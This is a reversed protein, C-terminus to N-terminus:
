DRTEMLLLQGKKYTIMGEEDAIENSVCRSDVPALFYDTLPYKFGKLTLDEVTGGLPFLSIYKGYQESKKIVTGRDILSIRNCSDLLWAKASAEKAISLLQVNGWVHDLRSGTCGTLIIEDCGLELALRLAIETDTADKEPRFRRIDVDARNVYSDLIGAEASDFDGVIHTVPLGLDSVAELGSDAAILFDAEVSHFVKRLFDKQISGGSVILAKKNM